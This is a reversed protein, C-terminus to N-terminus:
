GGNFLNGFMQSFQQQFFNMMGSYAEPDYVDPNDVAAQTLYQYMGTMSGIGANIINSNIQRGYNRDALWDQRFTDNSALQDRNMYDRDMRGIDFMYGQATTQFDHLRNLQNQEGQFALGERQLQLQMDQAYRQSANQGAAIGRQTALQQEQMVIENRIQREQGLNTNLADQNQGAAQAYTAADQQAIPLAQQVLAAQANGIAISSRGMGANNAARNARNMGQRLYPNNPDMLGQLQTAVLQDPNVVRTYARGDAFQQGQPLNTGSSTPQQYLGSSGITGNATRSRNFMTNYSNAM